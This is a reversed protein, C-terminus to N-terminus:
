DEKSTYDTAISDTNQKFLEEVAEELESMKSDADTEDKKLESIEYSINSVKKHMPNGPDYKRIPLEFPSKNIHRESLIGLKVLINYLYKSNLIGCIFYAEEKSNTNYYYATYDIITKDKYVVASRISKGSTNYV